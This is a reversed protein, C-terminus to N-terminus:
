IRHFSRWGDYLLCVQRQYSLSPIWWRIFALSFFYANHLLLNVFYLGIWFSRCRSSPPETSPYPNLSWEANSITSRIDPTTLRHNILQSCEFFRFIAGHTQACFSRQCYLLLQCSFPLHCCVFRYFYIKFNWPMQRSSSLSCVQQMKHRRVLVSVLCSFMVFFVPLM